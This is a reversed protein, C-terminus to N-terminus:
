DHEAPPTKKRDKPNRQPPTTSQGPPNFYADSFVVDGQFPKMSDRYRQASITTRIETKADELTLTEKSIMKYIFHAGGPDSFVESVEGPNMDMVMEHRPPLTSRRVKEMKTNPTIGPIGAATYAEVQLQDPDDGNAARARLDAALQTMAEESAKEQAQDPQPASAKADATTEAAPQASPSSPSKHDPHAVAMQKAHPVFIRALTAQEFSSENKRYYDAIDADTVRNAEEQLVRALDQSLLQLRAYRMEEEFAPTKDLGRKEAAAAMRMMQAYSNAVKLRLPLSMGPQLAETLKEFQARTIVTKCASGQGSSDPCFGNVTIVPDDPGVQVAPAKDTAGPAVKEAQAAAAPSAAPPETQGYALSALLLCVLCPLRLSFFRVPCALIAHGPHFRSTM